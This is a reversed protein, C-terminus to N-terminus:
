GNKILESLEEITRKLAYNDKLQDTVVDCGHLVTTHDRNGFTKGISTTTMNLMTRCLYMAIQRPLVINRSRKSSILDDPELEYRKAVTQLILEPTVERTDQVQVISELTRM